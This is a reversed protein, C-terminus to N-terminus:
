LRGNPKCSLCFHSVGVIGSEQLTNADYQERQLHMQQPHRHKMGVLKGLCHRRGLTRTALRLVRVQGHRSLAVIANNALNDPLARDPGGQCRRHRWRARERAQPQARRRILGVGLERRRNM